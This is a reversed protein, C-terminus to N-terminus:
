EVELNIENEEAYDEVAEDCFLSECCKTPYKDKCLECIEEAFEDFLEQKTM